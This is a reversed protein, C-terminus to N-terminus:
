LQDYLFSESYSDKLKCRKKFDDPSTFPGRSNREKLITDATKPGIGSVAELQSRTAKNISIKDSRFARAAFPGFYDTFNARSVLGGRPPLDQATVSSDHTTYLIFLDKALATKRYEETYLKLDVIKKIHKNQHLELALSGDELMMGCFGDAASAGSGNIIFSDCKRVDVQGKEHDIIEERKGQVFDYLGTLTNSVM